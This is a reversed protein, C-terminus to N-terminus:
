KLVRKASALGSLIAQFDQKKPAPATTKGGLSRPGGDDDIESSASTAGVLELRETDKSGDPIIVADCAGANVDADPGAAAAPDVMIPTVTAPDGGMISNGADVPMTLGNALVALRGDNGAVDTALAGVSLFRLAGRGKVTRAEEECQMRARELTTETVEEGKPTLKRALLNIARNAFRNTGKLAAANTAPVVRWDGGLNAWIFSRDYYEAILEVPDKGERTRRFAELEESAYHNNDFPIGINSISRTIGGEGLMRFIDKFPRPVRIGGDLANEALERWRQRPSTGLTRHEAEHYDDVIWRVIMGTLEGLGFRARAKPDYWDAAKARTSGELRSLVRVGLTGFFREVTAKLWPSKGPLNVIAFKLQNGALQFAKSLFELGRDTILMDFSGMCPWDNEADLGTLIKPLMAHLVARALTENSPPDFSIHIGVIMKTARCILVTLWPRAVRGSSDMVFIDLLCHDVEVEEMAREPLARRQFIHFKLYAMRPGFRARYEDFADYHERLFKYFTTHSVTPLKLFELKKELREYAYAKTNTITAGLKKNQPQDDTRGMYVARGAWEMAGYVCLVDADNAQEARRDNFRPRHDGRLHDSALLARIDRGANNWRLWWKKVASEGLAFVPIPAEALVNSRMKLKKPALAAEAADIKARQLEWESAKEATIEKAARRYADYKGVNKSLLDDVRAVYAERCQAEFRKSIPWRDFDTQLMEALAADLGSLDAPWHELRHDCWAALIEVHSWVKDPQNNLSSTLYGDRLRREVRWLMRGAVGDPMAITDGKAMRFTTQAM